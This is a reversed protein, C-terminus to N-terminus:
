TSPGRPTNTDHWGHPSAVSDAPNAVLTRDADNPSENPWAFVRYSSGDLVPAPSASQFAPQFAPALQRRRSTRQLHAKLDEVRDHSTWDDKAILAGTRADVAASWLHADESDDIVTRWALRLGAATPQWGLTAEIPARSIGGGSLLTTQAKTGSRRVVRLKEPRELKLGLAAKAVASSADLSQTDSAVTDLSVPAGGAFVVKGDAGVNVTVHGGFVELDRFRQNVNVHTVGLGKTEYV